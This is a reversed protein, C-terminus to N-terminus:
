DIINRKKLIEIIEMEARREIEKVMAIYDEIDMSQYKIDKYNFPVRADLYEIPEGECLYKLKLYELQDSNVIGEKHMDRDPYKLEDRMKNLDVKSNAAGKLKKFKEKKEKTLWPTNDLFKNEM